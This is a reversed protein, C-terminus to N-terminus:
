LSDPQVLQGQWFSSTELWGDIRIFIDLLQQCHCMASVQIKRQHQVQEGSHPSSFENRATPLCRNQLLFAEHGFCCRQPVLHVSIFPGLVSAPLRSMASLSLIM